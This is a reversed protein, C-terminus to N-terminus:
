RFHGEVWAFGLLVAVNLVAVPLAVLWALRRTAGPSQEVALGGVKHAIFAVLSGKLVLWAWVPLTEGQEGGLFLAGGVIGLALLGAARASRRVGPPVREIGPACRVGIGIATVYIGFALPQALVFWLDGQCAIVDAINASRAILFSPLAAALLPLGWTLVHAGWAFLSATVAVSRRRRLPPVMSQASRRVERTEAPLVDVLLPRMRWGLVALIPAGLLMVAAFAIWPPSHDLL